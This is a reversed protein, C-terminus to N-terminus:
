RETLLVEIGINKFQELEFEDASPNTILTNIKNLPAVTMLCEKGIKSSDCLLLTKECVSIMKRKISAVSPVQSDAISLGRSASVGDIGLILKNPSFQQIFDNSFDGVVISHKDYVLGGALYVVCNEIGSALPVLTYSNTIITLNKKNQLYEAIASTTSGGDIMLTDGDEILSAALKCIAKKEESYEGIRQKFPINDKIFEKSLDSDNNKLIAGGHTRTLLGRSELEMLDNRATTKSISFETSIEKVLIKKQKQLKQYIIRLREEQFLNNKKM